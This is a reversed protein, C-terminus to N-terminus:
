NKPWPFVGYVGFSRENLNFALANAAEKTMPALQSLRHAPGNAGFKLSDHAHTPAVYYAASQTM